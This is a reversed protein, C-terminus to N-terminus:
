ASSTKRRRSTESGCRSQPVLLPGTPSGQRWGSVMKLCAAKINNMGERDGAEAAKRYLSVAQADDRQVSFGNAYMYGVNTMGGSNGSEAAKRFWYLAKDNDRHVVNSGDLYMGGFNNMGLPSGAETAKRLWNFAQSYDIAAVGNGSKYALGLWAMADSDGAQAKRYVDALKPDTFQPSATESKAAEVSANKGLRKLRTKADENGQQVAGLNTKGVAGGAAAARQFWGLAQNLDQKVGRGSSYMIGLNTMADSNGADAAKRYWDLAQPYDQEVGYGTEYMVGVQTMSSADGSDAAKRYWSFAQQLNQAIGLGKANANALNTMGTVDGAKAAKGFEDVAPGYQQNQEFGRGLNNHAEAFEPKLQLATRYEAIAKVYEKKDTLANGLNYHGEPFCESQLFRSYRSFANGMHHYCTRFGLAQQFRLVADDTRGETHLLAVGLNNLADADGWDAPLDGYLKIVRDYQQRRIWAAALVNKNTAGLIDEALECSAWRLGEPTIERPKTMWSGRDNAQALIQFSNPTSALVDGDILTETGLVERAAAVLAEPSIGKVEATPPRLQAVPSRVFSIAAAAQPSGSNQRRQPPFDCPPSPAQGAAEKQISAIADQLADAVAEGSFTFPHERNEPPLHFPAIVTAPQLGFWATYLMVPVLIYFPLYSPLTSWWRQFLSPSVKAARRGVAHPKFFRKIKEGFSRVFNAM